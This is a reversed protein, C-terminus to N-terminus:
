WTKKRQFENLIIEEENADLLEVEFDGDKGIEQYLLPVNEQSDPDTIIVYDKGNYSLYGQFDCELVSNDEMLLAVTKRICCPSKFSIKEYAEQSGNAAATVYWEIAKNLEKIGQKGTEYTRALKLQSTVDNADAAIKYWCLATKIDSFSLAKQEVYEALARIADINGTEAMQRYVKGITAQDKISYRIKLLDIYKKWSILSEKEYGQKALVIAQDIDSNQQYYYSLDILQQVSLLEYSFNTKGVIDTIKKQSEAPLINIQKAMYCISDMYGSLASQLLIQIGEKRREQCHFLFKGYHFTAEESGNKMALNIWYLYSEINDNELYELALSFQAKIDGNEAQLQKQIGSYVNTFEIGLSSAVSNMVYNAWDESIGYIEQLQDVAQQIFIRQKDSTDNLTALVSKIFGGAYAMNLFNRERKKGTLFTDLFKLVTQKDEYIRIGFHSTLYNLASELTEINETINILPEQCFPCFLYIKNEDIDWMKHCAKCKMNEVGVRTPLTM